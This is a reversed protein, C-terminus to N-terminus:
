REPEAYHNTVAQPRGAYPSKATSVKERGERSKCVSALEPEPVIFHSFGCDLCIILKPFLWVGPEDLHKLGSFHIVMEGTLEALTTSGCSLCIM